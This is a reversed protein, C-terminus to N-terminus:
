AYRSRLRGVWGAIPISRPNPTANIFRLVSEVYEGRLEVSFAGGRALSLLVDSARAIGCWKICRENDLKQWIGKSVNIVGFSQDSYRPVSRSRNGYEIVSNPMLLRAIRLASYNRKYSDEPRKNKAKLRKSDRRDRNTTESTNRITTEAGDSATELSLYRDLEARRTSVSSFVDARSVLVLLMLMSVGCMSEYDSPSAAKGLLHIKCLKDFGDYTPADVEKAIKVANTIGTGDDIAGGFRASWVAIMRWDLAARAAERAVVICANEKRGGAPNLERLFADLKSSIERHDERYFLTGVPYPENVFGNDSAVDVVRAEVDQGAGLSRCAVACSGERHASVLRDRFKSTAVKLQAHLDSKSTDFSIEFPFAGAVAKLLRLPYKITSTEVVGDNPGSDPDAQAGLKTAPVVVCVRGAGIVFGAIVGLMMGAIDWHTGNQEHEVKIPCDCAAGPGLSACLRYDCVIINFSCGLRALGGFESVSGLKYIAFKSGLGSWAYEADNDGLDEIWLVSIRGDGPTKKPTRWGSNNSADSVKTMNVLRCGRLKRSQCRLWLELAFFVM